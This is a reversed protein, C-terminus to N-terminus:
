TTGMGLTRIKCYDKSLCGFIMEKNFKNYGVVGILRKRLYRSLGEIRLEKEDDERFFNDIDEDCGWPLQLSSSVTM